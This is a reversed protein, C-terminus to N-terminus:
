TVENWPAYQHVPLFKCPLVLHGLSTSPPFLPTRFAADTGLEEETHTLDSWNHRVRQSGMFQLRGAGRDIPNELCSYQLLTGHEGGPSRGLGLILGVDRLDRASAPPSKVVLAM